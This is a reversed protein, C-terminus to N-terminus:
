EWGKADYNLRQNGRLGRNNSPVVVVSLIFPCRGLFLLEPGRGAKRFENEVIENGEVGVGEGPLDNLM